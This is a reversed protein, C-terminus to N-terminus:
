MIVQQGKFGYGTCGVEETREATVGEEEEIDNLSMVSRRDVSIGM